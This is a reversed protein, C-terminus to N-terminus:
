PRCPLGGNTIPMYLMFNALQCPAGPHRAVPRRITDKDHQPPSARKVWVDKPRNSSEEGKSSPSRGGRSVFGTMPRRVKPDRDVIAVEDWRLGVKGGFTEVTADPEQECPQEQEGRPHVGVLAESARM